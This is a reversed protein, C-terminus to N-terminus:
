RGGRELKDIRQSLVLLERLLKETGREWQEVHARIAGRLESVESATAYAPGGRDDEDQAAIRGEISPPAVWKKRMREQYLAKAAELAKRGAPKEPNSEWAQYASQTTVGLAKGMEAQSLGLATRILKIESTKPM